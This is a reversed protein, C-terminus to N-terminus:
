SLSLLKSRSDNSNLLERNPSHKMEFSKDNKDITSFGENDGSESQIDESNVIEGGLIHVNQDAEQQKRYEIAHFNSKRKHLSPANIKSQQLIESM